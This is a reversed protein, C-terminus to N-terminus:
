DETKLGVDRLFQAQLGQLAAGDLALEAAHLVHETGRLARKVYGVGHAAVEGLLEALEAHAHSLRNLDGFGFYGVAISSLRDLPLHRTHAKRGAFLGISGEGDGLRLRWALELLLQGSGDRHDFRALGRRLCLGGTRRGIPRLGTAASWRASRRTRRQ